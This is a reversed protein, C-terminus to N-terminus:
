WDDDILHTTILMLIMVMKLYIILVMQYHFLNLFIIPYKLSSM